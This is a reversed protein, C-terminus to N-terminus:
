WWKTKGHRGLSMVEQFSSHITGLDEKFIIKWEVFIAFGGWGSKSNVAPHGIRKKKKLHCRNGSLLTSEWSYSEGWKGCAVQNFIGVKTKHNQSDGKYIVSGAEHSVMAALFENWVSIKPTVVHPGIQESFGAPLPIHANSFRVLSEDRTSPRGEASM